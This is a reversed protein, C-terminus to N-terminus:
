FSSSGPLSEPLCKVGYDEAKVDNDNKWSQYRYRAAPLEKANLLLGTSASQLCAVSCVQIPNEKANIFRKRENNVVAPTINIVDEGSGIQKECIDCVICRDEMTVQKQFKKIM